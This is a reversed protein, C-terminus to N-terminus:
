RFKRGAAMKLTPMPRTLTKEIEALEARLEERRKKKSIPTPVFKTDVLGNILPSATGHFNFHSSVCATAWMTGSISVTSTPLYDSV